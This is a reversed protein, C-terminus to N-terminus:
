PVKPTGYFNKSSSSFPNFVHIANDGGGGWNSKECFALSLHNYDKGWSNVM